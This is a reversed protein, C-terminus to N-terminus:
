VNCRLKETRIVPISGKLTMESKIINEINNLLIRRNQRFKIFIENKEYDYDGFTIDTIEVDNFKIVDIGTAYNITDTGDGKNFISTNNGAGGSITDNGKGAKVTDKSKTFAPPDLIIVDFKKKGIFPDLLDGEVFSIEVDNDRANEKAVDLAGKSIDSATVSVSIKEKKISIALAGSGTCLDLVEDDDKIFCLAKEM